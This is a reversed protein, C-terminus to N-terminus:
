GLRIALKKGTLKSLQNLRGEVREGLFNAMDKPLVFYIEANEDGPEAREFKLRPVVGDMSASCLYIVRLMGGLLKAFEM